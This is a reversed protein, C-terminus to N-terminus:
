YCLLAHLPAGGGWRVRGRLASIEIVVAGGEVRAGLRETLARAAAMTGGTALVDDVIVVRTGAELADAHMELREAGYELQYEVSLTDAPLKGAKRLPVFGADLERALAAGFIFGRSEIACVADVRRARWPSVLADICIAFAASDALLPTIDKFMVGPKPFDPIDRILPALRLMSPYGTPAAIRPGSLDAGAPAM